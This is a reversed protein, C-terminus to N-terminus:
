GFADATFSVGDPMCMRFVPASMCILWCVGVSAINITSSTSADPNLLSAKSRNVAGVTARRAATSQLAASATSLMSLSLTAANLSAYKGTWDVAAESTPPPTPLSKAIVPSRDKMLMRLGTYDHQEQQESLLASSLVATAADSPTHHALPMSGAHRARQAITVRNVSPSMLEATDARRTSRSGTRACTDDLAAARSDVSLYGTVSAPAPSALRGGQSWVDDVANAMLFLDLGTRPSDSGLSGGAGSHAPSNGVTSKPTGATVDVDGRVFRRNAQDAAWQAPRPIPRIGSASSVRGNDPPFNMADPTLEISVPPKSDAARVIPLGPQCVAVTRPDRRSQAAPKRPMSAAAPKGSERHPLLKANAKRVPVGHPATTGSGSNSRSRAPTEVPSPTVRAELHTTPTPSTQPDCLPDVAAPSNRQSPGQQQEQVPSSHHLEQLNYLKRIEDSDADDALTVRWGGRSVAVPSAM